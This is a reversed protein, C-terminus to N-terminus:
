CEDAIRLMIKRIRLMTASGLHLTHLHATRKEPWTCHAKARSVISAESRHGDSHPHIPPGFIFKWLVLSLNQQHTGRRALHNNNTKTPWLKQKSGVVMQQQELLQLCSHSAHAPSVQFCFTLFARGFVESHNMILCPKGPIM